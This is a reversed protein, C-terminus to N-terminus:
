SVGQMLNLIRLMVGLQFYDLWFKEALQQEEENKIRSDIESIVSGKVINVFFEVKKKRNEVPTICCTEYTARYDEKYM